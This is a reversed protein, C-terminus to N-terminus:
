EWSAMSDNIRSFRAYKRTLHLIKNYKMWLINWINSVKYLGEYWPIDKWLELSPYHSTNSM